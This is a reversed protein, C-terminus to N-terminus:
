FFVDNARLGEVDQQKPRMSSRNSASACSNLLVRQKPKIASRCISRGASFDFHLNPITTCVTCITIFGSSFEQLSALSIIKLMGGNAVVFDMPFLYKGLPFPVFEFLVFRRLIALLSYVGPFVALAYAAIYMSGQSASADWPNGFDMRILVILATISLLLLTGWGLIAWAISLPEHLIPLPGDKRKTSALFRQRTEKPLDNFKIEVFSYDSM